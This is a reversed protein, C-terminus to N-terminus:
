AFEAMTLLLDDAERELRDVLVPAEELRGEEAARELQRATATLGGSTFNAASGKLAHAARRIASPDGGAMATHVATLMRPCEAIFLLVLQRALERDGGLQDILVDPSWLGDASM